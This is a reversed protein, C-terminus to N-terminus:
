SHVVVCIHQYLRWILDWLFCVDQLLAYGGTCVSSCALGAAKMCVLYEISDCVCHGQLFTIYPASSGDHNCDTPRAM